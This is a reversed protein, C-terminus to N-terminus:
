KENEAKIVVFGGKGSGEQFAQVEDIKDLEGFVTQVMEIQSFGHAKLVSQLEAAAYFTADKYFVNADKRISYAHGLPSEKDVFGVIFLGSPKLVRKIERFSQHIDDLFCVTTVMLVFDYSSDAFPLSEAIGSCVTLGKKEAIARMKGSPEIGTKIGLPEAFRGSGVGVELGEKNKPVFHAVAKLESLYVNYNDDFWAEYQEYHADFCDTIPM